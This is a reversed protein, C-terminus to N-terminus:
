FINILFWYILVIFILSDLRDMLGGHGPILNSFDKVKEYRKITSKILDGFEGVLSLIFTIIIIFFINSYNKIVLIYFISGFLGGIIVGGILGEITKNPSINPALKHRGFRTGIIYAFTDSLIAILILYLLEYLDKNRIAIIKSFVLGIFIILGILFFTAKYNYKNSKIFILSGLYIFILIILLLEININLIDKLILFGLIIYSIIKIVIPIGRFQLFENLIMEGLLLSFIAFPINGLIIFPVAILILLIASIFRKKM